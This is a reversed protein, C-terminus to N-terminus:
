LLFFRGKGKQHGRKISSCYVGEEKKKEKRGLLNEPQPDKRLEFPEYLFRLTENEGRDKRQGKFRIKRGRKRDDQLHTEISQIMKEGDLALCISEGRRGSFNKVKGYFQGLLPGRGRKQTGKKCRRIPGNHKSNLSPKKGRENIGLPIELAIPLISESIEENGSEGM